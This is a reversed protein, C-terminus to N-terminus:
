IPRVIELGRIYTFMVRITPALLRLGGSWFRYISDLHIRIALDRHAPKTTEASVTRDDMATCVDSVGISRANIYILSGVQVM